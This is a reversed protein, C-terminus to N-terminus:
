NGCSISKQSLISIQNQIDNFSFAQAKATPVTIGVVLILYLGLIVIKNKIM